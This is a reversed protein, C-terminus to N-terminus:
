GPSQKRCSTPSHIPQLTSSMSRSRFIGWHSRFLGSTKFPRLSEPGFARAKTRFILVSRRLGRQRIRSAM